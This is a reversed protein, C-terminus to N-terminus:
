KMSYIIICPVMYMFNFLVTKGVCGRRLLGGTLWPMRLTSAERDCESVDCKAPSRQALSRCSASVEVQCCRVGVHFVDMSGAPNSGAIGAPSRACVWAKSRTAM